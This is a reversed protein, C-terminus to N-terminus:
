VSSQNNEVKKYDPKERGGEEWDEIVEDYCCWCFFCCRCFTIHVWRIWRWVARAVCFVATCALSTQLLNLKQHVNQSFSDDQQLNDLNAFIACLLFLFYALTSMTGFNDLNDIQQRSLLHDGWLLYAELKGVLIAVVVAPHLPERVYDYIKAVIFVRPFFEFLVFLIYLYIPIRNYVKWINIRHAAIVGLLCFIVIGSLISFFWTLGASEQGPVPVNMGWLGTVLNMPVLITGLATLRSLIDNIQNNAQTMEISIQALYNSHSRSLIKEYHNLNQVMTIIHDQIDGLYLLIENSIVVDWRLENCRKVLGKMVDPKNGLLRLLGMVKRRCHGIRRLMDSQEAEKLILVLEDISDVEYEITGIIPAFSDTIDDILAYIIWDPTVTIYDKLQRIRRRVNAPHSSPRRHFSLIGDKMVVMFMSLPQLYTPSCNDEDFYRFCIFYYNKFLECKERTEETQIDEITLPHIGFARGLLQMDDDTPNVIDIWWCGAMVLQTLTMGPPPIEALTHAHVTNCATSYFTFRLTADCKSHIHPLHRISRPGNDSLHGVSECRRRKRIKQERLRRENEERVYEELVAFDIGKKDKSETIMPFCVDKAGKEMITGGDSDTDDCCSNTDHNSNSDPHIIRVVHDRHRVNTAEPSIPPSNSVNHGEVSRTPSPTHSAPRLLPSTEDYIQDSPFISPSSNFTNSYYVQQQHNPNDSYNQTYRPQTQQQYELQSHDQGFEQRETTDTTSHLTDSSHSYTLPTTPSHPETM